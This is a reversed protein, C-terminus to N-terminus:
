VMTEGTRLRQPARVPSLTNIWCSVQGDEPRMGERVSDLVYVEPPRDPPATADSLGYEVGDELPSATLVMVRGWADEGVQMVVQEPHAGRLGWLVVPRPMFHGRPDRMLAEVRDALPPAPAHPLTDTPM